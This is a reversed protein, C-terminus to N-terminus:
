KERRIRFINDEIYKLDDQDLSNSSFVFHVNWLGSKEIAPTLSQRGLWKWSPRCGACGSITGIIKKELEKRRNGPDGIVYFKIKDEIYETVKQESGLIRFLHKRFISTRARGNIHRNLRRLLTGSTNIGVRVIRQGGHAWEGNELMLYLGQAPFEAHSRSDSLFERGKRFNFIQGKTLIAHLQECKTGFHDIDGRM